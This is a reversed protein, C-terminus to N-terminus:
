DVHEFLFGSLREEVVSDVALLEQFLIKMNAKLSYVILHFWGVCVPPYRELLAVGFMREFGLETSGVVSFVYYTM